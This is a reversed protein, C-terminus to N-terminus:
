TYQPQSARIIQQLYRGSLVVDYIRGNVVNCCLRVSVHVICIRSFMM